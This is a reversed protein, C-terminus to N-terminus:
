SPECDADISYGIARIVDRMRAEDIVAVAGLELDLDAVLVRSLSEGCAVCDQTFGLEGERFVACNALKSRFDFRKSTVLLGLVTNGRNLEERSVVILKHRGAGSEAWYVEGPRIM